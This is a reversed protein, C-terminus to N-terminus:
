SGLVARACTRAFPYGAAKDHNISWVMVGRADPAGKLLDRWLRCVEGASKEGSEGPVQVILFGMGASAEGVVRSWELTHGVIWAREPRGGNYFQPSVMDLTGRLRRALDLQEGEAGDLRPAMTVTFGQGYHTKLRRTAEAITAPDLGHELDWDIGHFGYRDIIPTVTRVFTDLQASTRIQLGGDNWGGVSLLVRRGDAHVKKIDAVLSAQSQVSQSFRVAGTSDGVAFAAMVLTYEKPVDSLRVSPNGWGHWYGAVVRRPLGSLGAQQEQEHMGTPAVPPDPGCAAVLTGTLALLATMVMLRHWVHLTATSPPWTM